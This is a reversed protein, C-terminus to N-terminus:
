ARVRQSSVLSCTSPASSATTSCVRKRRPWSSSGAPVTPSDSLRPDLRAHHSSNDLGTACTLQLQGSKSQAATPNRPYNMTM